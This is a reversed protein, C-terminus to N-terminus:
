DEVLAGCHACCTKGVDPDNDKETILYPEWESGCASCIDTIVREVDLRILDQSRHDRLFDEFDKVAKRLALELGEMRKVPDDIHWPARVWPFEATVKVDTMVSRRKCTKTDTQTDGM